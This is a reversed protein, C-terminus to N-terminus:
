RFEEKEGIPISRDEEKILRTAIVCRYPMLQVDIDHPANALIHWALTMASKYPLVNMEQYFGSGSPVKNADGEEPSIKFRVKQWEETVLLRGYLADDVLLARHRYLKPVKVEVTYGVFETHSQSENQKKEENPTM